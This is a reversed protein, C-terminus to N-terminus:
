RSLKLLDQAYADIDFPLDNDMTRAVHVALVDAMRELAMEREVGQSTLALMVLGAERPNGDAIQNDVAAKLAQLAFADETQEDETM